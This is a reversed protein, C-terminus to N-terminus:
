GRRSGRTAPKDARAPKGAALAARNFASLKPSGWGSALDYGRVAPYIGLPTGNGFSSAPAAASIDNSGITVDNFLSTRRGSNALAYILPNLFGLPQQGRRAADQSMLLVGATLLPTAASTGGIVGWGEVGIGKCAATTCYYSYGPQSDALAAVDPVVRPTGSLGPAVQYWPRQFLLSRGGGGAGALEAPTQGLNLKQNVLVSFPTDNWVVERDISNDRNLRLNTGGVATVWPSSSPFSVIPLASNIVRACGGSGTDGAAVLVSIGSAGALAFLDNLSEVATVSGGIELLGMSAECLGLSMSIADPHQGRTGLALSTAQVLSAAFNNDAAVGNATYVDIRSLRPAAGVLVELDLTTEDGDDSNKRSGVTTRHIQPMKAGFCDAFTRIDSHRFGDTEIVAVRMGEGRLGRRHLADFGYARHLQSPTFGQRAGAECGAPTGSPDAASGVEPSLGNYPDNPAFDPINRATARQVRKALARRAAAPRAVPADGLLAAATVTGRLAAPVPLASAVEGASAASASAGADFADRIAGASGHALVFTGSQSITARLGHARLWSTTAAKARPAAGFRRRLQEVTLYQRYQPSAPDSVSRAFAQLGDSDRLRLIAVSSGSAAQASPVAVAGLALAAVAVACARRARPAAARRRSLRAHSTSAEM